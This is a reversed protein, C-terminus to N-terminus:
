TPLSEEREVCEVCVWGESEPIEKDGKKHAREKMWVMLAGCKKCIDERDEM